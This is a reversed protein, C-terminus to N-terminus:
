EPFVKRRDALRDLSDASAGNTRQYYSRTLRYQNLKAIFATPFEICFRARYRRIRYDLQTNLTNGLKHGVYVKADPAVASPETITRCLERLQGLRAVQPWCETFNSGEHRNWVSGTRTLDFTPCTENGEVLIVGM